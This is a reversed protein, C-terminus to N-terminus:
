LFVSLSQSRESNKKEFHSIKCSIGLDLTKVFQEIAEQNIKVDKAKEHVVQCTKRVRTFVNETEM